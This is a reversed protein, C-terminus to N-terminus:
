SVKYQSILKDGKWVEVCPLVKSLTHFLEIADWHNEAKYWRSVAQHETKIHYM